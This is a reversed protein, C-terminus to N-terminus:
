WATRGGDFVLNHGTMFSSADSALFVIAGKFENEQAMRGMPIRESLKAVFSPEHGRYVGAPSFSNVRVNHPAWEVALCRTLHIVGAKSVPYFIPSNFLVGAYGAGDARYIRPDPSIVGIDSAINIISGKGRAIMTTAVAQCCNLTGTVNVDLGRAFLDHRYTRSDAFYDEDPASTAYRTLAANNILVDVRGHRALVKAVAADISPRDTVDAVEAECRWHSKTMRAIAVDLAERGLDFLVPMGGMEAIAEAYQVGLFGAGGTIIAVHDTLDYQTRVSSATVTMASARADNTYGPM